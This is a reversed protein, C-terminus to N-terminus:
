NNVPEMQYQGVTIHLTDWSKYALWNVIDEVCQEHPEYVKNNRDV